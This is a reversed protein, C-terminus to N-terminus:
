ESGGEGWRAVALGVLALAIDRMRILLSLSLGLAPPLGMAGLAWIQSAELSGVAGPLPMLVAIRVATLLAVAQWGNMEVGVFDAMLWYELALLVWSLVSLASALWFAPAHDRCFLVIQEEAEALIALPRWHGLRLVAATAALPVRGRWWGMVLGLPLLLMVGGGAVVEQGVSDGLVGGYVVGMLGLFLFGFSTILTLAKDLVVGATATALPVGHQTHLLYVQVPEGGFQSGPTVYSVAYGALGIRGIHWLPVPYGQARSIVAWRGFLAALMGGNALVLVGIQWGRLGQVATWAEGWAVGRLALYLLLAALIYWLYFRRM